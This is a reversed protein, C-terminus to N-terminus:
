QWPRINLDGVGGPLWSPSKPLIVFAPNSSIEEDTPIYLTKLRTSDPGEAVLYMSVANPGLGIEGVGPTPNSAFTFKSNEGGAPIKQFNGNNISIALTFRTGNTISADMAFSILPLLCFLASLLFFRKMKM